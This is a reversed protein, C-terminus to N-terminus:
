EKEINCYVHYCSNGFENLLKEEDDMKYETEEKKSEM